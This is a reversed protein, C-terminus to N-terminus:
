RDRGLRASAAQELVVRDRRVDATELADQAHEAHQRALDPRGLMRLAEDAAEDPRPRPGGTPPLGVDPRALGDGGTRPEAGHAIEEALLELDHRCGLGAHREEDRRAGRDRGVADQEPQAGADRLHSTTWGDAAFPSVM